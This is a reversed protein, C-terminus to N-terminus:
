LDTIIFWPSVLPQEGLFSLLQIKQTLRGISRVLMLNKIVPSIAHLSQTTSSTWINHLCPCVRSGGWVDLYDKETGLNSNLIKFEALDLYEQMAQWNLAKM